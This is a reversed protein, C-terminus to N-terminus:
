KLSKLCFAIFPSALWDSLSVSGATPSKARAFCGTVIPSSVGRASQSSDSRDTLRAFPHLPDQMSFVKSTIFPIISFVYEAYSFSM